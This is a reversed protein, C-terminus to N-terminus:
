LIPNILGCCISTFSLNKLLHLTFPEHVRGNIKSPKYARDILTANLTGLVRFLKACKIRPLRGVGHFRGSEFCANKQSTLDKVQHSGAFISKTVKLNTICVKVAKGCTCM